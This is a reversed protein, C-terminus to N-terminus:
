MRPKAIRMGLKQAVSQLVSLMEATRDRDRGTFIVLWDKLDVASIMPDTRILM